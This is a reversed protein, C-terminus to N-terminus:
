KDAIYRYAFRGAPACDGQDVFDLIDGSAPTHDVWKFTFNLPNKSATLGLMKRPVAVQMENGHLVYQVRGIKEWKWEGDANKEVVGPGARNIIYDYGNWGTDPDNDSNILLTMWCPPSYSSIAEHTRVYFYLYQSNRAVKMTQFVNRSTDNKYHKDGWGAFDRKAAYAPSSTYTPAVNKWAAFSNGIHMTIPASAKEASRVGKYRRIYSALQYYYNDGYGGKMPEMDRSFEENYNDVFFTGGKPLPKGLFNMGGENVFRQAVWENWGTVFVFEPNVELARRWQDSFYVGKDVDAAILDTNLPPEKGNHFSRGIDSVPHQAVCVSIQEPKDPSEDWGPQQPYNDLWPWKDKGDGFWGQGKSWAWSERITFFSRLQESMGETSALILPKGKWRFWLDPYLNKAYLNDYLKQVVQASSAHTIFAIQPTNGGERRISEYTDCVAKWNDDYTFGNTVDCIIVDVGIDSLMQAHKRIVFPDNSRYFGMHPEGWWHFAGVPGYKPNDPDVAILQSNDYLNTGHAGLWLFYFIGVYRDKKPSGCEASGPLVRGLADVATYGDSLTNPSLMKQEAIGMAKGGTIMLLVSFFLGLESFFRTYAM